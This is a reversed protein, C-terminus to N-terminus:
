RRIITVNWAKLVPQVRGAFVSESRHSVQARCQDRSAFERASKLHIAGTLFEGAPIIVRGGGSQACAAIANSIAATCDM